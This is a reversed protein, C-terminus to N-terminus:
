IINSDSPRMLSPLRLDSGYKQKMHRQEQRLAATEQLKAQGGKRETVAAVNKEWIHLVNDDAEQRNGLKKYYSSMLTKVVICALVLEPILSVVVSETNCFSM